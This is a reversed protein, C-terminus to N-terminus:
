GQHRTCFYATRGGVKCHDIIGGCRRCEAGKKRHRILWDEPLKRYRAGSDIVARLIPQLSKRIKELAKADLTDARTAPDIGTQFLVEDSWLNGVGAIRQQNLLAAKIPAKSAGITAIFKKATITLADPGLKRASLFAEPDDVVYTAGFKRPDRFALRRTGEFSILWRTRPPPEAPIDFPRLSGSMGLHVALWPGQESGFLLQKGQRRAQTFRHGVFRALENGGPLTVFKTDEGPEVATTTRNLCENEVLRRATEVEPLEPM